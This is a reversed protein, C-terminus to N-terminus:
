NLDKKLKYLNIREQINDRGSIFSSVIEISLGEEYAKDFTLIEFNFKYYKDLISKVIKNLDEQTKCNFFSKKGNDIWCITKKNSNKSM